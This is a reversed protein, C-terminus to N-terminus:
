TSKTVNGKKITGKKIFSSDHVKDQLVKREISHINEKYEKEKQVLEDQLRVMEAELETKRSKFERLEDLEMRYRACQTQLTDIENKLSNKM